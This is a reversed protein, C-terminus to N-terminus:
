RIAEHYLAAYKPGVKDWSLKNALAILNLDFGQPGTSDLSILMDHLDDATPPTWFISADYSDELDRFQRCGSAAILPRGATIGVRIAGSTGSNACTYIFATADCSSLWAVAQAKEVYGTFHTHPNKALLVARRADDVKGVVLLNWGLEATVDALMDYNKWPFDWGLTGLTPRWADSNFPQPVPWGRGTAPPCPQRWYHVKARLDAPFYIGDHTDTVGETYPPTHGSLDCPEHVVMASVNRCGLLEWALRDPQVEYTDHFTIVFPTPAYRAIVEPTWRSHLGRHYNLHVVDYPSPGPFRLPDLWAPDTSFQITDDGAQVAHVLMESHEAIGCQGASTVLAVKM